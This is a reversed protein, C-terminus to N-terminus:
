PSSGSGTDEEPEFTSPEGQLGTGVGSETNLEPQAPEPDAGSEYTGDVWDESM